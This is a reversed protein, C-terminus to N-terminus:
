RAQARRAARVGAGGLALDSLTARALDADLPGAFGSMIVAGIRALSGARRPAPEARLAPATPGPPRGRPIAARRRRAVTETGGVQLAHGGGAADHTPPWRAAPARHAPTLPAPAGRRPPSGATAPRRGPARDLAWAAGCGGSRPTQLRPGVPRGAARRAAMDLASTRRRDRARMPRAAIGPRGHNQTAMTACRPGRAGDCRGPADPTPSQRTRHRRSSSADPEAPRGRRRRRPESQRPGRDSVPAARRRGATRPALRARGAARARSRRGCVARARPARCAGSRALKTRRAAGRRRTRRRGTPPTAHRNLRQRRDGQEARAAPAGVGPVPAPPSRSPSAHPLRPRRHEAGAAAPRPGARRAPEPARPTADDM